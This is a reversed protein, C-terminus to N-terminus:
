DSVTVMIQLQGKMSRMVIWEEQVDKHEKGNITVSKIRYGKPLRTKLYVPTDAIRNPLTLNIEIFGDALHSQSSLSLPGFVTPAQRIHLEQGHELWRRPTGALLCLRDSREDILMARFIHILSSISHVHPQTNDGWETTTLTQHSIAATTLSYLLRLFDEVQERQLLTVALDQSYFCTGGMLNGLCNDGTILHELSGRHTKDITWRIIHSIREDDAPLLGGTVLNIPGCVDYFYRNKFEPRHLIWPVYWPDSSKDTLRDAAALIDQRYAQAEQLLEPGESHGWDTLLQSISYLGLHCIADSYTFYGDTDSKLDCVYRGWILGACPNDPKEKSFNRERIIWACGDLIQQKHEELWSRDNYMRAHQSMTWLAWGPGSTWSALKHSEGITNTYDSFCGEYTRTGTPKNKGQRSFITDLLRGATEHDGMLNLAYIWKACGDDWQCRYIVSDFVVYQSDWRRTLFYGDLMAKTYINNLIEDPTEFRSVKEAQRAHRNKINQLERAYTKGTLEKASVAPGEAKVKWFLTDQPEFARNVVVRVTQGRGIKGRIVMANFVGDHRRLLALPDDKDFAADAPFVPSFELDFGEPLVASIIANDDSFLVGDQFRLKPRPNDEDGTLFALLTIDKDQQARNIIDLGAWALTREQGTIIEESRLPQAFATQHLLFSGHRWSSIVIPLYDGLLSQRVPEGAGMPIIKGDEYLAFILAHPMLTPDTEPLPQIGMGTHYGRVNASSYIQGNASVSVDAPDGAPGIPTFKGHDKFQAVYWDYDAESGAPPASIAPPTVQEAYGPLTSSM